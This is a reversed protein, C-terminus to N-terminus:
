KRSHQQSAQAAATIADAFTQVLSLPLDHGLGPIIRLQAGPILATVEKGAEVPVIPDDSGHVVVTPVSITKLEKRRDGAAL